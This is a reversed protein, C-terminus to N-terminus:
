LYLKHNIDYTIFPKLLLNWGTTRHETGSMHADSEDDNTEYKEGHSNSESNDRDPYAKATYKGLNDNMLEHKYDRGSM